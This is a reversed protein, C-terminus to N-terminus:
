SRGRSMAAIVLIAALAGGGYLMLKKTDMGGTPVGADADGGARMLAVDGSPVSYPMVQSAMPTATQLARTLAAAGSPVSMAVTTAQTPTPAVQTAAVPVAGTKFPFRWGLKKGYKLWHGWPDATWKAINKTATSGKGWNATAYNEQIYRAADFNEPTEGASIAAAEKNLASAAKQANKDAIMKASLALSSGGTLVAAGIHAVPKVVKKVLKKLSSGIGGMQMSDRPYAAMYM